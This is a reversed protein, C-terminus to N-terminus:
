FAHDGFYEILGDRNLIHIRGYAIRLVNNGAFKKLCSSVSARTLGTVAAIQDQTYQIQESMQSNSYLFYAVKEEAKNFQGYFIWESLVEIKKMFLSLLEELCGASTVHEVLTDKGLVLVTLDDAADTCVIRMRSQSMVEEGALNGPGIYCLTHESGDPYLLYARIRGSVIYYIEDAFQTKAFIQQGKVYNRTTGYSRFIEALTKM